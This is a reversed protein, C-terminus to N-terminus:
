NRDSSNASVVAPQGKYPSIPGCDGCEALDAISYYSPILLCTM